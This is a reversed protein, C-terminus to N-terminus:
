TPLWAAFGSKSPRIWAGAKGTSSRTSGPSRSRGRCFLPEWTPASAAWTSWRRSRASRAPRPEWAPGGAQRGPHLPIGPERHVAEHRQQLQRPIRPHGVPDRCGGQGPGAGQPYGPVPGAGSLSFRQHLSRDPGGPGPAAIRLEDVALDLVRRTYNNPRSSGSAALIQLGNHDDM